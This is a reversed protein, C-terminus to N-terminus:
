ERPLDNHLVGWIHLLHLVAWALLFFVMQLPFIFRLSLYVAGGLTLLKLAEGWYFARLVHKADGLKASFFCCLIFVGYALLYSLGGWGYSQWASREVFCMM